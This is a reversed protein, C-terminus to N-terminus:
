SLNNINEIMYDLEQKTLAPHVPITTINRVLKESNPCVKRYKQFISYNYLVRYDYRGIDSPIRKQGKHKKDAFLYAELIEAMENESLNKLENLLESPLKNSM